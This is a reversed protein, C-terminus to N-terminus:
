SLDNEVNDEHDELQKNYNIAMIVYLLRQLSSCSWDTNHFDAQNKNPCMM